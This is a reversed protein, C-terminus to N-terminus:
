TTQTRAAATVNASVIILIWDFTGIESLTSGEDRSDVTRGAYERALELEVHARTASRRGFVSRVNQLLRATETLSGCLDTVVSNFGSVTDSRRKPRGKDYHPTSM